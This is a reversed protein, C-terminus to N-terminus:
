ASSKCEVGGEVDLPKVPRETADRRYWRRGFTGLVMM